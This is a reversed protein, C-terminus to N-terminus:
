KNEYDEMLYPTSLTDRHGASFTSKSILYECYHSLYQDPKDKKFIYLFISLSLTGLWVFVFKLETQGFIFNSLALYLFIFLADGIEFGFLKVKKGLARPVSSTYLEM